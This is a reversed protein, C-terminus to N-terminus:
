APVENSKHTDYLKIAHVIAYCAWVFHYTKATTPAEWFDNLELGGAEDADWSNIEQWFDFESSYQNGGIFDNVAELALKSKEQDESDLLDLDDIFDTLYQKVSNCATEPDFKSIEGAQVKESWYGTNIYYADDQGRFFGFMDNTREFIFDGMDGTFILFGPRTTINYHMDVSHPKKVTIDRYVGQDLNVTLQHSAVDKLFRELTPQEM